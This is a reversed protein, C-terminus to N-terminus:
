FLWWLYQKIAALIARITFDCYKNRLYVIVVSSKAQFRSFISIATVFLDRLRRLEWIFVTHM